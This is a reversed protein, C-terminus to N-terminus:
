GRLLSPDGPTTLVFAGISRTEAFPETAMIVREEGNSPNIFSAVRRYGAKEYLFTAGNFQRTGPGTEEFENTVLWIRDVPTGVGQRTSEYLFQAKGMFRRVLSETEGEPKAKGRHKEYMRVAVTDSCGDPLQGDETEILLQLPRDHEKSKQRHETLEDELSSPGFWIVSALDGEMDRLAVLFRGKEYWREFADPDSFREEFDKRVRRQMLDERSAAIIQDVLEPNRGVTLRYQEAGYQLMGIEVLDNPQPAREAQTMVTM